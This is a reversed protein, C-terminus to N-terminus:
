SEFGAQKLSQVVSPPFKKKAMGDEIWTLLLWVRGAHATGTSDGRLADRGRNLLNHLTDAHTVQKRSTAPPLDDAISGLREMKVSLSRTFNGYEEIEKKM